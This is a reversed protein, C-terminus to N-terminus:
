TRTVTINPLDADEIRAGSSGDLFWYFSPDRWRLVRGLALGAPPEDAYCAVRRIDGKHDKGAKPRLRLLAADPSAALAPLQPLERVQSSPCASSRLACSGVPAWLLGHAAAAAGDEVWGVSWALLRASICWLDAAAGAGALCKGEFTHRLFAVPPSVVRLELTKGVAIRGGLQQLQRWSILEREGSGASSGAAVSSAASAAAGGAAPAEGGADGAAADVAAAAQAVSARRKCPQKHDVVHRLQHDKCSRCTIPFPLAPRM